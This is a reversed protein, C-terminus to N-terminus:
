KILASASMFRLPAERHLIHRLSRPLLTKPTGFKRRAESLEAIRSDATDPDLIADLLDRDALSLPAVADPVRDIIRAAAAALAERDGPQWAASRSRYLAAGFIHIRLFKTGLSVQQVHSLRTITDEGWVSAVHRLEDAVPPLSLTVRDSADNGVVYGPGRRQVAIKGTAWLLTSMRLDEGIRLHADLELGREFLFSKRILGLPASRYFLRDRVADRSLRPIPRTVPTRMVDGTDYHVRPIVADQGASLSLLADITGAEYFDDSGMIGVWPAEAKQLGFMFPGSPSPIGDQLELFKVQKRVTPPIQEQILRTEVNHCVVTASAFGGNGEIISEVARAIPRNPSHCAIVIEVKSDLQM